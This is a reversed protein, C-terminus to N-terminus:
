AVVVADFADDRMALKQLGSAPYINEVACSLGNDCPKSIRSSENPYNLEEKFLIVTDATLRRVVQDRIRRNLIHLNRGFLRLVLWFSRLDMVDSEPRLDRHDATVM